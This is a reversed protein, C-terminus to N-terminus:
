DFGILKFMLHMQHKLQDPKILLSALLDSEQKQTVSFAKDMM